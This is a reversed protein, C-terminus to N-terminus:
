PMMMPEAVERARAEDVLRAVLEGALGHDPPVEASSGRREEAQDQGDVQHAVRNAVDEVGAREPLM